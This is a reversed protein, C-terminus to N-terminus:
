SFQATVAGPSQQLENLPLISSEPNQGTDSSMATEQRMAPTMSGETGVRSHLEVGETGLEDPCHRDRGLAEHDEHCHRLHIRVFWKLCTAGGTGRKQGM